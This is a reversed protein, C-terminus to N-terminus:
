RKIIIIKNYNTSCRPCRKSSLKSECDACLDLHKCKLIGVNKPNIKCIVCYAENIYRSEREEKIKQLKEKLEDELDELESDNMAHMEKEENNSKVGEFLKLMKHSYPWGQTEEHLFELLDGLKKSNVALKDLDQQAADREKEWSYKTHSHAM